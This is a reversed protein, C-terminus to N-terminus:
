NKREQLSQRKCEIVWELKADISLAKDLWKLSEKYRGLRVLVCGKNGYAWANEPDLQISKEIDILGEELKGSKSEADGRNNYAYAFMPNLAIAKTFDSIAEKYKGIKSELLGRYNYYNESTSDYRIAKNMDQIAETHKGMAEYCLARDHYVIPDDFYYMWVARDYEQLAEAYRKLSMYIPARLRHFDFVVMDNLEEIQNFVRLAEEFKQENQLLYSKYYYGESSTPFKKIVMDFDSYASQLNNLMANARGRGIYAEISNPAIDLYKNYFMIAKEPKDLELYLDGIFLYPKSLKTDLNLAILYNDIATQAQGIKGQANALRMYADVDKPQLRIAKQFDSIANQFDERSVRTTGRGIYAEFLTTDIELARNYLYIKTDSDSEGSARNFWKQSEELLSDNQTFEASKLRILEDQKKWGSTVAELRANKVPHTRSEGEMTLTRIGAKAEELNAGMMRLASGSFRDAALEMLKRATTSTDGFNDFNLHHGIEHALVSYVAWYTKADTKLNELFDTSYLIYRTKGDVAALATRVNSSKLLFNQEIGMMNCIEAVVKNAETSPEFQYYENGIEDGSYACFNQLNLVAQARLPCLSLLNLLILILISKM